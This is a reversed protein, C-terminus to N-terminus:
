APLMEAVAPPIPRLSHKAEGTLARLAKAVMEGASMAPLALQSALQSQMSACIGQLWALWLQQATKLELHAMLGQQHALSIAHTLPQLANNLQCEQAPDIESLNLMLVQLEPQQQIFHIYVLSIQGLLLIGDQAPTQQQFHSLLEDFCKDIIARLLANKDHYHRYPANHTVGAEQAVKRLTLASVGQTRLIHVGADCLAQKLNGHHFPKKKMAM